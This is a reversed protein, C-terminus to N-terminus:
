PEDTVKDVGMTLSFSPRYEGAGPISSISGSVTSRKDVRSELQGIMKASGGVLQIDYVHFFTGEVPNGFFDLPRDLHLYLYKTPQSKGAWQESGMKIVGQLIRSSSSPRIITAASDGVVQCSASPSVILAAATTLLMFITSHKMNKGRKVSTLSHSAYMKVPRKALKCFSGLRPM